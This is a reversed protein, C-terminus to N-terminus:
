PTTPVSTAGSHYGLMASVDQAWYEAFLVGTAAIAPGNLGLFNSATLQMLTARNAAITAPSTGSVFASEYAAAAVSAQTAANEAQAAAASLWGVYPSTATAMAHAAPGAGPTSGFAKLVRDVGQAAANLEDALGNWAAAASLLSSSGAGSYVRNSNVEPSVSTFDFVAVRADHGFVKAQEAIAKHQEAIEKDQDTLNTDAEAITNRSVAKANGSSARKAAVAHSPAAVRKKHHAVSSHSSSGSAASDAHAVGSGSALAAGVGLALTGAGMWIYLGRAM